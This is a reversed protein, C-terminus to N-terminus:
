CLLQMQPSLYKGDTEWLMITKKLAVHLSITSIIFVIETSRHLKFARFKHNSNYTVINMSQMLVHFRLINQNDTNKSDETIPLCRADAEFFRRFHISYIRRFWVFNACIDGYVNMRNFYWISTIYKQFYLFVEDYKRRTMTSHRMPM